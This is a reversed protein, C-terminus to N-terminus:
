IELEFISDSVLSMRFHRVNIVAKQQPFELSKIVVKDSELIFYDTLACKLQIAENKKYLQVLEDIERDPFQGKTGIFFGDLQISYDEISILEKVTGTRNVLPTEVITKKSTVSLICHEILKDNLYVPLYYASDTGPNLVLPACSRSTIEQSATNKSIEFPQVKFGYIQELWRQVDYKRPNM